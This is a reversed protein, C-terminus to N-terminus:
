FATIRPTPADNRERDKKCTASVYLSDAALILPRALVSSRRLVESTNIIFRNRWPMLQKDSPQIGLGFFGDVTLRSPGYYHSFMRKLMSPSYYRVEFGSPSRFSRKLQHYLCRVGFRNPMQILLRANIKSVSAAQKIATVADDTSFHQLVSYSFVNDFTDAAFPLQTADAVVFRVNNELGLDRSLRQAALVAGLSPDIGIVRYGLKTAAISWRGWNCGVDLLCEGNASQPLRLSPIPISKMTGVLREYLYGSTAGVLFSIIPDIPEPHTRHGRLREKLETLQQPTVGITDEHFENDPDTTAAKLSADAVWLTSQERPALLVPVGHVIPYRRGEDSVYHSGDRRLSSGTVPCRLYADIDFPM